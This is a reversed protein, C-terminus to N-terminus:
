GAQPPLYQTAVFVLSVHLNAGHGLLAKVGALSGLRATWTLATNGIADEANVDRGRDLAERVLKLEGHAAAWM